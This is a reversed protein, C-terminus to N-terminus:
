IRVINWPGWGQKGAARGAGGAEARLGPPQDRWGGKGDCVGHGVGAWGGQERRLGMMPTRLTAQLSPLGLPRGSGEGMVGPGWQM